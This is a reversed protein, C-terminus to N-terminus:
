ATASKRLFTFAVVALGALLLAFTKPEPTVANATITVPPANGLSVGTEGFFFALYNPISQGGFFDVTIPQGVQLEGSVSGCTNSTLFADISDCAVTQGALAQNATFQFRLDNISTGTENLFLLCASQGALSTPVGASGCSVWNVLYPTNTQQILNFAGITPPMPDFIVHIDDASAPGSFTCVLVLLLLAPAIYRM